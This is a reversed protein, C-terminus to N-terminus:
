NLRHLTMPRRPPAAAAHGNRAWACPRNASHEEQQASASTADHAGMGARVPDVDMMMEKRRRKERL